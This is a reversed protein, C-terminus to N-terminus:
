SIPVGNDAHRGDHVTESRRTDSASGNDPNDGCINEVSYVGWNNEYNLTEAYIEDFAKHVMDRVEDLVEPLYRPDSRAFSMIENHIKDTIKRKSKSIAEIHIGYKEWSRM